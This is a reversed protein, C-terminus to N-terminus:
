TGKNKTKREAKKVKRDKRWEDSRYRGKFELNGDEDVKATPKVRKAKKRYVYGKEKVKSAVDIKVAASKGFTVTDGPYLKKSRRIEVFDNLTCLSNQIATKAAGGTDVLDCLRLFTQLDCLPTENIHDNDNDNDNNVDDSSALSSSTTAIGFQQQHRRSSWPSTTGINQFSSRRTTTTRINNNRGSSLSLAFTTTTKSWSSSVGIIIIIALVTATSISKALSSTSPPARRRKTM